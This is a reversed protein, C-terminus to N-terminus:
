KSKPKVGSKADAPAPAPPPGLHKNLFELVLPRLDRQPPELNFSHPAGEILVLEHPAGVKALAAALDKSQSVDVTKDATGHILLIPAGDKHVYTIPSAKKYIAPNEERTQFFMKMDHYNPLDVAGYLDVACAVKTSTGAFPQAPEFGDGPQTLALMCALNGGASCGLVAIRNPDIGYKPANVRLWRVATKADYLSMPWTPNRIGKSWLRYNISMAVYGAQALDCSISTERKKAKDGDNFGGGHIVIVAPLLQDKAVSTPFYLDAKEKRPEPLYALDREVRVGDPIPFGAGASSSDDDDSAARLAPSLTALLALLAPLLTRKM